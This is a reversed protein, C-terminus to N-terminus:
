YGGIWSATLVTMTVLVFAGMAVVVWFGERLCVPHAPGIPAALGAEVDSVPRPPALAAARRLQRANRTVVGVNRALLTPGWLGVRLTRDQWSRGIGRGCDRCLWTRLEFHRRRFLFGRQYEFTMEAGPAHGCM